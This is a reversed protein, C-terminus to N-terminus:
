STPSESVPQEHASFASPAAGSLREIAALAQQLTAVKIVKLGGSAASRADTYNSGPPVLFVTAGANEVAITKQPLGGVAFVNGNSDIEGTAAIKLDGTISTKSLSDMIGLTMALGASPGGINATNISVSVPFHWQFANELGIGLWVTASEHGACGTTGANPPVASTPSEVLQARAYTITGDATIHAHEVKLAVTRGPVARDLADVLGCRSSVAQGRAGVIRDAVSLIQSAPANTAVALVAAGAHKDTVDLHLARMAAAKADNQSDYMQLFSQAYLQSIPVGSQILESGPVVVEERGPHIEAWLLQWVTLQTLYVDTLLITKRTASHPHGAVSILPGVPQAVGPTISFSNTTHKLSWVFLGIIAVLIVLGAIRARGRRRPESTGHTVIGVGYGGLSAVDHKRAERGLVV